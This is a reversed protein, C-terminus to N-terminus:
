IANSSALYFLNMAAGCYRLTFHQCYFYGESTTM